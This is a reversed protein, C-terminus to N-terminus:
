ELKQGLPQVSRMRNRLEDTVEQAESRNRIVRPTILILLETRAKEVSTSGFLNGLLPIRSLGPLGSRGKSNAERILGGLAVTQGSHIAVTSEVMRQQITPSDIDSTTTEVVDSVEQIIEMSVLGSANVHPTVGLIVGTDRFEISNVIPADADRVSTAASTQVPVQDGVQLRAEQNDQVLLQPSSIVNVDTVEDLADLVVRIDSNEFIYSFGPFLPDVAGSVATSFTFENDGGDFFWQLGYRLEDNLTVEAITAEILVQLPVIDLKKLAERVLKYDRPTALIALANYIEDPIIRIEAERYLSYGAGLGLGDIPALDEAEPDAEALLTGYRSAPPGRLMSVDSTDSENETFPDSQAPTFIKNLVEALDAVQRHQVYYVYLKPTAAESGLDLREIWDQASALYSAQPSIVLVANLRSIPVFRLLGGLPGEDNSGFIKTLERVVQDANAIELPVLAFSMGALWDVDFIDVFDLVNAQQEASGAVVVVNRASDARLVAGPPVVQELMRAIEAAAIYRLPIVQIGYGAGQPARSARGSPRGLRPTANRPAQELPLVQYLGDVELLASGNLRLAAELTPVLSERPVPRSTQLTVTGELSPDVVFNEQLIDGLIAQVVQAIETDVFSLTVQDDVITTNPRVRGKPPRVLQGSGAIVETKSRRLGSTNPRGRIGQFSADSQLNSAPEPGSRLEGTSPNPALSGREIDAQEITVAPDPESASSAPVNSSRPYVPTTPDCAAISLLLVGLGSFGFIKAWGLGVCLKGM